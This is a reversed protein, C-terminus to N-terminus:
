AKTPLTLHTYSVTKYNSSRTVPEANVVFDQGKVFQLSSGPLAVLDVVVHHEDASGGPLTTSVLVAFLAAHISLSIYFFNIRRTM